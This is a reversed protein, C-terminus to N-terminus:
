KKPIKIEFTTGVGMESEVDVKYNLLDCFAKLISLGIGSGEINQIQENTSRYFRDFIRNLENRSIGLGNDKVKLSIYKAQVNIILDIQSGETTYKFANDLLISLCQKLKSADTSIWLNDVNKHIYFQKNEFEAVLSYMEGLEKVLESLNVTSIDTNNDVDVKSLVLLDRQLKQMGSVETVMNALLSEHDSVTTMPQKMLREVQGKIITLPTRMEHSVDQIFQTQLEYSKEVPKFVITILKQVLYINVTILVIFSIAIVQYLTYISGMESDVNMMTQIVIGEKNFTKGRFNFGEQKFNIFNHNNEKTLNPKSQTFYNDNTKYILLDKYYIYTIVKPNPFVSADVTTGVIGSFDYINQSTIEFVSAYNTQENLIIDESKTESLLNDDQLGLMIKYQNMEQNLLEDVNEFLVAQFVFTIVFAFLSLSIFIIGLSMWM